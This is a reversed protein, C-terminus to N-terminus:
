RPQDKQWAELTGVPYSDWVSGNDRWRLVCAVLPLEKPVHTILDSDDEKIAMVYDDVKNIKVKEVFHVPFVGKHHKVCVVWPLNAMRDEPTRFKDIANFTAETTELLRYGQVVVPTFDNPSCNIVDDSFIKLITQYSATEPLPLNPTKLVPETLKDTFDVSLEEDTEVDLCIRKPSSPGTSEKALTNSAFPHADRNIIFRLIQAVVSQPSKSILMRFLSGKGWNLQNIESYSILQKVGCQASDIPWCIGVASSPNPTPKPANKAVLWKGNVCYRIVGSFVTLLKPYTKVDKLQVLLSGVTATEKCANRVGESKYGNNTLTSASLALPKKLIEQLDKEEGVCLELCTIIHNLLMDLALKGLNSDHQPNEM